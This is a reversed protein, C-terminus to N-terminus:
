DGFLGEKGGVALFLLAVVQSDVHKPLPPRSFVLANREHNHCKSQDGVGAKVVKVLTFDVTFLTYHLVQIKVYTYVLGM